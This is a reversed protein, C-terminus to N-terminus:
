LKNDETGNTRVPSVMNVEDEITVRDTQSPSDILWCRNVREEYSSRVPLAVRDRELVSDKPLSRMKQNKGSDEKENFVSTFKYRSNTTSSQGIEVSGGLKFSGIVMSGVREESQMSEKQKGLAPTSHNRGLDPKEPRIDLAVPPLQKREHEQLHPQSNSQKISGKFYPSDLM